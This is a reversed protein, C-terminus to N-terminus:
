KRVEAFARWTKMSVLHASAAFGYLDSCVLGHPEVCNLRGSVIRQALVKSGSEGTVENYTGVIRFSVRLDTLV